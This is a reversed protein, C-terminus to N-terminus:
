RGRASEVGPRAKRRQENVARTLRAELRRAFAPAEVAGAINERIQELEAAVDALATDARQIALRVSVTDIVDLRGLEIRNRRLSSRMYKIGGEVERTLARASAAAGPTM